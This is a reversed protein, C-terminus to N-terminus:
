GQPLLLLVSLVAFVVSLIITSWILFKEVSRKSRYFESAGGFAGSIGAGQVQLLILAILIISVIIQLALIFM